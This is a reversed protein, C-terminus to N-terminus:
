ETMATGHAGALIRFIVRIGAVDIDDGDELRVRGDTKVGRVSTGNRSGCDEILAADGDVTIRAHHRSVKTSDLRLRCDRSRGLLNEGPRLSVERGDHIVCFQTERIDTDSQANDAQFAYGFGHVTRIFCPQRASEGLATRLEFILTTLSVDTVFTDPWLTEHIQKKAVAEPRRSVLLTLLDVAKATLHVPEGVRTLQRAGPDFVFVGFM